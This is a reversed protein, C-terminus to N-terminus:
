RPDRPADPGSRALRACLAQKVRYELRAPDKAAAREYYQRSEHFRGLRFCCTALSEYSLTDFIRADYAVFPDFDGAEGFALVREFAHIAADPEGQGMLIRGRLWWLQANAPFREIAEQM